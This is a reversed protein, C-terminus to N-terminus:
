IFFTAALDAYVRLFKRSIHIQEANLENLYGRIQRDSCGEAYTIVSSLVLLANLLYQTMGPAPIFSFRQDIPSNNAM